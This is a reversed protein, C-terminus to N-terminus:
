NNGDVVVEARTAQYVEQLNDHSRKSIGVSTNSSGRSDIEISCLSFTDEGPKCVCIMGLRDPETRKKFRFGDVHVYDDVVIYFSGKKITKNDWTKVKKKGVKRPKRVVMSLTYCRENLLDVDDTERNQAIFTGSVLQKIREERTQTEERTVRVTNNANIYKLPNTKFYPGALDSTCTSGLAVDLQQDLCPDCVCLRRRVMLETPDDPNRGTFQYLEAIGNIPTCNYTERPVCVVPLKFDKNDKSYMDSRRREIIKTRYKTAIEETPAVMVHNFRDISNNKRYRYSTEGTGEGWPCTEPVDCVMSSKIAFDLATTATCDGRFIAKQPKQRAVRNMADWLGKFGFKPAMIHHKIVGHKKAFAASKIQKHKCGYQAVAGDTVDWVTAGTLGGDTRELKFVENIYHNVIYDLMGNANSWNNEKKGSSAIWFFWADTDFVEITHEEVHGKGRRNHAPVTVTRRNTTVIFCEMACNNPVGCTIEHKKLIPTIAAYDHGIFIDYPKLTSKIKKCCRNFYDIEFKNSFYCVAESKLIAILERASKREDEVEVAKRENEHEVMNFRSVTTFENPDNFISCFQLKKMDGCEDCPAPDATHSQTCILKNRRCEATNKQGFVKEGFVVCDKPRMKYEDDGIKLEPIVIKGCLVQHEFEHLMGKDSSFIQEFAHNECECRDLREKMSTRKYINRLGELAFVVSQKTVNVCAHATPDQICTCRMKLFLWMLIPKGDAEIYAKYNQSVLFAEYGDKNGYEKTRYTHDVWLPVKKTGINCKRM